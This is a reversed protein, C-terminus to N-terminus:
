PVPRFQVSDALWALDETTGREPLNPILFINPRQKVLGM